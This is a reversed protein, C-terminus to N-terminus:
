RQLMNLNSIPLLLRNLRDHLDYVALPLYNLREHLDCVSLPRRNLRENFDHVSHPLCNLRENLDYVPLSLHNLRVNVHNNYNQPLIRRRTAGEMWRSAGFKHLSSAKHSLLNLSCLM